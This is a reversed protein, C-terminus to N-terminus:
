YSYDESNLYFGKDIEDGWYGELYTKSIKNYVKSINGVIYLQKEGWSGQM